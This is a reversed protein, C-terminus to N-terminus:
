YKDYSPYFTWSFSFTVSIFIDLHPQQFKSGYFSSINNPFWNLLHLWIPLSAGFPLPVEIKTLLNLFDFSKSLHHSTRLCCTRFNHFLIQSFKHYCGHCGKIPYSASHPSMLQGSITSCLSSLQCNIIVIFSIRDREEQQRWIGVIHKFRANRVIKAHKLIEMSFVPNHQQSHAHSGHLHCVFSPLAIPLLEMMIGAIPCEPIYKTERTIFM